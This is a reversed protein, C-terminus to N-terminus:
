ANEKELAAGRDLDYAPMHFRLWDNGLMKEFLADATKEDLVEAQSRDSSWGCGTWYVPKRNAWTSPKNVIVVGDAKKVKKKRRAM